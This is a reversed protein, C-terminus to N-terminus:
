GRSQLHQVESAAVSRRGQRRGFLAGVHEADIDRAIKDFGPVSARLCLAQRVAPELFAIGGIQTFEGIPAEVEHDADESGHAGLGNSTAFSITRTVRGPPRM